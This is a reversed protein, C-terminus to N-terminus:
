TRSNHRHTPTRRYGAFTERLLARQDPPWGRIWEIFSRLAARDRSLILHGANFMANVHQVLPISSIVPRYQQVAEYFATQLLLRRHALAVRDTFEPDAQLDTVASVIAFLTFQAIQRADRQHDITGLAEFRDPGIAEVVRLSARAIATSTEMRRNYRSLAALRWIADESAAFTECWQAAAIVTTAPLSRERLIFKLPYVADPNAHNRGFWALAPTQIASFAGDAELWAKYVFGAEPTEAHKVLWVRISAEVLGRDGAADLWAKYVFRAEPTEAHKM